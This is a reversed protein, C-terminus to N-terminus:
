PQDSIGGFQRLWSAAEETNSFSEVNIEKLYTEKALMTLQKQQPTVDVFALAKFLAAGGTILALQSNFTLEYEGKRILMVPVPGNFQSFFDIVAPIAETTVIQNTYITILVYTESIKEMSLKGTDLYDM